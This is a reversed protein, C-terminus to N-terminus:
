KERKARSVAKALLSAITEMLAVDDPTKYRNGPTHACAVLYGHLEDEFGMPVAAAEDTHFLVRIPLAQEPPLGISTVPTGQSYAWMFRPDRGLSEQLHSLHRQTLQRPALLMPDGGSLVVILSADWGLDRVLADTVLSLMPEARDQALLGHSIADVARSRREHHRALGEIRKLRHRLEKLEAEQERIVSQLHEQADGKPM